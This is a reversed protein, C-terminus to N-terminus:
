SSKVAVKTGYIRKRREETADYHMVYDLIMTLLSGKIWNYQGPPGGCFQIPGITAAPIDQPIEFCYKFPTTVKSGAVGDIIIQDALAGMESLIDVAESATLNAFERQYEELSKM